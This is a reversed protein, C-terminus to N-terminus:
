KIIKPNIIIENAYMILDSLKYLLETYDYSEFFPELIIYFNSLFYDVFKINNYIEFAIDEVASNLSKRNKLIKKIDNKHSINVQGFNKYERTLISKVFNITFIRFLVLMNLFRFLEDKNVISIVIMFNNLQFVLLKFEDIKYDIMKKDIIENLLISLEDLDNHSELIIIYKHIEKKKEFLNKLMICNNEIKSKEYEKEVNATIMFNFTSKDLINLYRGQCKLVDETDDYPIGLDNCTNVAWLQSAYDICPLFTM